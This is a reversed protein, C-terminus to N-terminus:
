LIHVMIFKSASGIIKIISSETWYELPQYMNKVAKYYKNWNTIPPWLAIKDSKLWNKPIVQMGDQFEVIYYNSEKQWKLFVM